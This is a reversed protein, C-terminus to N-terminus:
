GLELIPLTWGQSMGLARGGPPKWCMSLMHSVPAKKRCSARARAEYKCLTEPELAKGNERQARSLEELTVPDKQDWMDNPSLTVWPDSLGPTPHKWGSLGVCEIAKKPAWFHINREQTQKRTVPPCHVQGPILMTVLRRWKLVRQVNNQRLYDIIKELSEYKDVYNDNRTNKIGKQRDVNGVQIIKRRDSSKRLMSQLTPRSSIREGANTHGFFGKSQRQKQFVNKSYISYWTPLKKGVLVIFFWPPDPLISLLTTGLSFAFDAGSQFWGQDSWLFSFLLTWFPCATDLNCVPEGSCQRRDQM